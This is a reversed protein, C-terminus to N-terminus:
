PALLAQCIGKTTQPDFPRPLSDETLPREPGGWYATRRADVHIDPGAVVFASGDIAGCSLKVESVSSPDVSFRFGYRWRVSLDSGGAVPGASVFRGVGSSGPVGAQACAMLLGVAVFRLAGSM